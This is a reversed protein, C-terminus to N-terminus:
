AHTTVVYYVAGCHLMHHYMHHEGALEDRAEQLDAICRDVFLKLSHLERQAGEHQASSTDARESLEAKSKKLVSCHILTCLTLAQYYTILGTHHYTTHVYMIESRATDLSSSHRAAEAQARRCESEWDKDNMKLLCLTHTLPHPPPHCFTLLITLSLYHTYTHSLSNTTTKIHTMCHRDACNHFNLRHLNSTIRCLVNLHIVCLYVCVCVCVCVCM